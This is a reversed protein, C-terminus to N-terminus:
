QWFVPKKNTGRLTCDTCERSSGSHGIIEEPGIIPIFIIAGVPILPDEIGGDKLYNFRQNEQNVPVTAGPPLYRLYVSDLGCNPYPQTPIWAPLQQNKIFIRKSTVNGVSVYGIVTQSPNTLSHINGNIQSPQPDFIGGLQETNKKLNVWFAYADATLAYQNVIISYESTFKESTSSVFTVPTNSVV